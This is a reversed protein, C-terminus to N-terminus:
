TRGFRAIVQKKTRLAYSTAVEGSVGDIASVDLYPLPETRSLAEHIESKLGEDSHAKAVVEKVEMGPLKLTLFDYCRQCCKLEAEEPQAIHSRDVLTVGEKTYSAYSFFRRKPPAVIWAVVLAVTKQVAGM